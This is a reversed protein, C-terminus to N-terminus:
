FSIPIISNDSPFTLSSRRRSSAANLRDRAIVCGHVARAGAMKLIRACVSLTAGTTCVDDVLLVAKDKIRLTKRLRYGVEANRWRERRGFSTQSRNILKRGLVDSWVPRKLRRAIEKSLVASQNYGRFTEKWFGMPVPIVADVDPKRDWGSWLADVFDNTLYEKGSYKFKHILDKLVGSFEGAAHFTDLHSGPFENTFTPQNLAAACRACVSALSDAPRDDGCGACVAPLFVNLM